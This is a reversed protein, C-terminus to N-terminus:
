VHARGIEDRTFFFDPDEGFIDTDSNISSCARLDAECRRCFDTKEDSIYGCNPCEYAGGYPKWTSATIKTSAEVDAGVLAIYIDEADSREKPNDSYNAVDAFWEIMHEDKAEVQRKIDDFSKENPTWSDYVDYFGYPDYTTMFEEIAIVLEDTTM